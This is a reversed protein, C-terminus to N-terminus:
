PARGAADDRAAAELAEIGVLAVVADRAPRLHEGGAVDAAALREDHPRDAFAALGGLRDVLEQHALGRQRASARKSKTLPEADALRARASFGRDRVGESSRESDVRRRSCAAFPARPVTSIRRILARSVDPERRSSSARTDASGRRRRKTPTGYSPRARGPKARRAAPSRGERAGRCSSGGSRGSSEGRGRHDDGAHEQSSHCLPIQHHRRTAFKQSAPDTSDFAGTDTLADDESDPVLQHTFTRM